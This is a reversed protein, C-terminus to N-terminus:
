QIIPVGCQDAPLLSFGQSKIVHASKLSTCIWSDTDFYQALSGSDATRIVLYVNRSVNFPAGADAAYGVKKKTAKPLIKYRAFSFPAIADPNGIVAGPDHEQVENVSCVSDTQAIAAQLQAETEGISALFFSRTGSGAQPVKAEIHGSPGGFDSWDTKGCTYIDFLDSASLNLSVHSTPKAYVYSLRDKAFPFFSTGEDGSANPGRSSRAFSVDPNAQLEDIGASSGNPRTIPDAGKRVVIQASGTANFSALRRSGGVRAANFAGSLGQVVFETTDSGVGVIDNKDPLFKPDAQAPGTLAMSLALSGVTAAAAVGTLRLSKRM